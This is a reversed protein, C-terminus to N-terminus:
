VHAQNYPLSTRLLFAPEQSLRSIETVSAVRCGNQRAQDLMEFLRQRETEGYPSLTIGSCYLLDYGALSDCIASTEPLEFLLRAAASDPWYSFHREGTADTQIVYLGPLRGPVRVVLETGIGEAQWGAGMEDTWPDDGLATTYAVSAGLRALYVATNLTDGGYGRSLRGDAEERLEIM